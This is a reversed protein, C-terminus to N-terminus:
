GGAFSGRSLAELAAKIVAVALNEAGTPGIDVIENSSYIVMTGAEIMAPTIEIEQEPAGAARDLAAASDQCM